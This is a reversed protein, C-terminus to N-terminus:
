NGSTYFNGGIPRGTHNQRFFVVYWIVAFSRKATYVKGYIQSSISWHILYSGIPRGTIKARFHGVYWIVLLVRWNTKSRASSITCSMIGAFTGHIRADRWFSVDWIIIPQPNM